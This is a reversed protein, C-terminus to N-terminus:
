LLKPPEVPLGDPGYGWDKAVLIWTVGGLDLFM